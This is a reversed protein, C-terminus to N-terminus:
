LARMCGATGVPSFHGGDHTLTASISHVGAIEACPQFSNISSHGGDYTLRASISHLGRRSVIYVAIEAYSYRDLTLRHDRAAAGLLVREAAEVDGAAAHAAALANFTVLTPNVRRATMEQFLGEARAAADRVGSKAHASILTNFSAANLPEGTAALRRLSAEAGALDGAQM